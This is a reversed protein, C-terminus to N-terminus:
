RRLLRGRNLELFRAAYLRSRFEYDIKKNWVTIELAPPRVLEYVGLVVGPLIAAVLTLTLRLTTGVGPFHWRLALNVAFALAVGLGTTILWRGISHRRFRRACARHAPIMVSAAGGPLSAWPGPIVWRAGRLRIADDVGARECIPCLDPYIPTQGLPLQVDFSGPM